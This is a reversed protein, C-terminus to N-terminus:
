CRRERRLSALALRIATRVARIELRYGIGPETILYAPAGPDPELKRRLTGVYVRLYNTQDLYAPGWVERLLQQHGVLRGPTRALV